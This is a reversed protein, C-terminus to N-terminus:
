EGELNILKLIDHMDFITDEEYKPPVYDQPKHTILTGQIGLDEDLLYMGSLNLFSPNDYTHGGIIQKEGLIIWIIHLNNNQLFDIFSKKKIFLSSFSNHHVSADFCVIKNNEDLFEGETDSEHLSMNDYIFKSLININFAHEKSYDFEEEWYYEKTTLIFDAIHSNTTDDHLECIDSDEGYHKDFERYAPAWYYERRYVEYWNSKAPM